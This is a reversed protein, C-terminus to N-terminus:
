NLAKAERRQNHPWPLRPGVVVDPASKSWGSPDGAGYDADTIRDANAMQRLAARSTAQELVGGAGAGELGAVVVATGVVLAGIVVLAAAGVLV